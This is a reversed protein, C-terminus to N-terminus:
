EDLIREFNVLVEDVSDEIFMYTKMLDKDDVHINMTNTLDEVVVNFIDNVLKM